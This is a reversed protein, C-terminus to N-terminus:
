PGARRDLWERAGALGVISPIGATLISAAAERLLWLSVGMLIIASILAVWSIRLWDFYIRKGTPESM